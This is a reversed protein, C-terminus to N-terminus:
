GTILFGDEDMCQVEPVEEEEVGKVFFSGPEERYSFGVMMRGLSFDKSGVQDGDNQDSGDYTASPGNLSVIGNRDTALGQVEVVSDQNLCNECKGILFGEDKFRLVRESLLPIWPLWQQFWPGVGPRVWLLPYDWLHMERLRMWNAYIRTSSPDNDRDLFELLNKRWEVLGVPLDTKGSHSASLFEGRAVRLGDESAFFLENRNKLLAKKVENIADEGMKTRDCFSQRGLSMVEQRLKSVSAEGAQIPSGVRVTVRYPFSTPIKRFFKGGQMSFVSGWVGDLHVPIVPVGAQKALVVSGRMFPLLVGLRSIGGEAFVCLPVGEKLRKVSLRFSDLSKESSVTLTKTLRFVWGMLPSDALGAYALYRVKRPFAAGIFVPDAYSLHNSVILCGGVPFREMGVIKIRYFIKLMMHFWARCFDEFLNRVTLLGIVLAPAMIVLLEEKASLKLVNSLYAHFLILGIGCLQTLLNSAALIKGREEEKAQDQLYGNLPVFFLAGFFGLSLCFCDFTVATPEALYLGIYIIPIGLAGIPSLGIEIRGRNLYAVFLSGLMIGVGVLLFWYGYLSGMGVQGVVVEGSLKVLVLYFFSGVGWFWADGMAAYRLGRYKFLYFLDHFHRVFLSARFPKARIAQTEPIPWSIVWSALAFVSVFGCIILAAAWGGREVVLHDFAIAGVFAGGLIGVMALMEMYGVAKGLRSTGVLEKLIGKKAPSLFASQISLLFFGALSFQLNQAYLACGLLGLGLLQGFLAFVIVKRKSFRDALWGAFPAFVVFPLILLISVQQNVTDMSAKGFQVAAMVPLMAKMVNDNFAGITQAVMLPWVVGFSREEKDAKVV